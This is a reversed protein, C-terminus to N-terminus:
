DSVTQDMLAASEEALGLASLHESIMPRTESISPSFYLSVIRM